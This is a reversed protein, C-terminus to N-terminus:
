HSRFLDSIIENPFQENEGKLYPFGCLMIEKKEGKGSLLSIYETVADINIKSTQIYKKTKKRM